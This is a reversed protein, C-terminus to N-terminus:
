RSPAKKRKVVALSFDEGLSISSAAASGHAETPRKSCPSGSCTEPGVSEGNGLEGSYNLGWTMVTGNAQVAMAHDYPGAIAVVDQLGAVAVPTSTSGTETGNGLQGFEGRGWAMVTGDRLLALASQNGASIAKVENINSVPEPTFSEGSENGLEGFGDYGWAMVEGDELLALSFAAGESVAVVHALGPVPIPTASDKTSGNGLQGFDNAGWAVVTGNSLLALVSQGGASIARVHSPATVPVPTLSCAVNSPCVSSASFSGTGLQGHEDSGWAVLAGSKLLAYGNYAGAAIKTAQSISSLEVPATAAETTGDGLQGLFNAGWAFVHHKTTLALANDRGAAVQRAHSLGDGFDLTSRSTTTGDGLQGFGNAGWAAVAPAAAHATAPLAFTIIGALAAVSQRLGIVRFGSM